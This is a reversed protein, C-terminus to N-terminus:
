VEPAVIARATGAYSNYVGADFSTAATEISGTATPCDVKIVATASRGVRAEGSASGGHPGTKVDPNSSVRPTGFESWEVDLSCWGTAAIWSPAKVQGSAVASGVSAIPASSLSAYRMEITEHSCPQANICRAWTFHDVWLCSKGCSSSTVNGDEDVHTGNSSTAPSYSSISLDIAQYASPAEPIRFSATGILNDGRATLVQIPDDGSAEGSDHQALALFPAVLAFTLGVTIGLWTKPERITSM